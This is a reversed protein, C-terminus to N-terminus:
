ANSLLKRGCHWCYIAELDCDLHQAETLSEGCSTCYGFATKENSEVVCMGDCRKEADENYECEVGEEESDQYDAPTFTTIKHFEHGNSSTAMGDYVLFNSEAIANGYREPTIIRLRPRPKQKSRYDLLLVSYPTGENKSPYRLKVDNALEDYKLVRYLRKVPLDRLPVM